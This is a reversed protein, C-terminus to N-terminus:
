EPPLCLDCNRASLPCDPMTENATKTDCKHLVTRTPSHIINTKGAMCSNRITQSPLHAHACDTMTQYNYTTHVTGSVRSPESSSLVFDWARLYPGYYHCLYHISRLRSTPSA